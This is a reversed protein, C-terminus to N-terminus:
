KRVLSKENWFYSFIRQSENNDFNRKNSSYFVKELILEKEGVDM